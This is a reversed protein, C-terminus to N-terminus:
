ISNKRKDNQNQHTENKIIEEMKQEVRKEIKM